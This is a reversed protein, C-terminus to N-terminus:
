MERMRKRFWKCGDSEKRGKVRGKLLLFFCLFWFEFIKYDFFKKEYIMMFFELEDFFLDFFLDKGDDMDEEFGIFLGGMM